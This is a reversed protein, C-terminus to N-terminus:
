RVGEKNIVIYDVRTTSIDFLKHPFSNYSNISYFAFVNLRKLLKSQHSVYIILILIFFM